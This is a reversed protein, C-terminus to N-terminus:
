NAFDVSVGMQFRRPNLPYHPLSFYNDGTLGQNVHTFMIYFRAKSLKMNIYANMFPYNGCEIEQQNYFSMTAPQYAVSKYKSYYSCDVGFQVDLVKAVKFLLYLNSYAVFKPIPIVTQESSTQYILRNNWNLIGVKFNQELQANFIQVSGGHQTPMCNENFYVHNQVNEVGINLKTKTHPINLIGGFRLTHTKDFNNDWIFHNSVYHNMLYPVAENKFLGYGSITVTDGFLKFRSSIDGRVKIDGAVDGMVGFEATANYTLITGRQKTLQAGIWLLNQDAETPVKAVPYPTLGEPLPSVRDITDTTQSFKRIEHTAYAALGAKAYKHFRELLSIGITNRLSWYTTRDYTGNLNLYTNEWFEHDDTTDTNKFIHKGDKYDLTWIFSSVPIYKRNVTTDNVYEEEYYGVKYRHNMYFQTGVIKSHAATLNTPIAKADISTEGGQLQAPDTIYLDDTIGGNEKNLLNYHNFFTQLEYRDGIYSGSAGWILGKSAQYNYCGKSYIYDLLAGIQLRPGSNGSFLAKLRDQANERGGGTNYSLLTMPVRTNYFKMTELSPIWPSLADQFFFDSMSKREFYILNMGETGMNGTTAYAPSVASPIAQQYYNYLTTDITTTKHLGLPPLIEWAYSPAIVPDKGWSISALAISLIATILYKKKM